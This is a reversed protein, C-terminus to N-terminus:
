LLYVLAFGCSYAVLLHPFYRLYAGFTVGQVKSMVLIGAASGIALLSGGVGVSYTLGLWSQLPMDLKSALVGATLPVNDLLASCLGVVYSAMAQPLLVYLDTILALTGIEKLMGVLLLVGLFFLLTDFEIKRIYDMIPIDAPDHKVWHVLLFVLSLGFLFILLPPVQLFSNIVLTSLITLLFIVAIIKDLREAQHRQRPIRVEGSFGPLMLTALVLCSIVGAPILHLLDLIGVKGANFIMLTTVDGTILAAGGSNIGFVALVALKINKQTDLQLSLILAVAVLTATINDAFSSLVFCFLVVIYPLSREPLRRPLVRYVMGEVMGHQNLYAVFTMAALLFLWLQAVELLGEHFAETTTLSPEFLFLLIWSLTGLFLTTKAKNIHIVEELAISLFALVALCLLIGHLM